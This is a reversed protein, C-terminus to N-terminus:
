AEVVVTYSRVERPQGGWPMTYTATVQVEGPAVARLTYRHRVVPTHEFRDDEIAVVSGTGELRWLHSPAPIFPILLDVTEGVRLRHVEPGDGPEDDPVPPPEASAPLAAGPSGPRLERAPDYSPPPPEPQDAVWIWGDREEVRYVPLYGPKLKWLSEPRADRAPIVNEGSALDYLYLHRVCRLRGEFFSAEDLPTEQHPCNTAFAVVTGDETRCVLVDTGGARARVLGPAAATGPALADSRLVAHM